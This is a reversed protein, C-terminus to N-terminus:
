VSGSKCAHIIDLVSRATLYFSPAPSYVARRVAETLTIGPAGRLVQLARAYLDYYLRRKMPRTSPSLAIGRRMQSVIILAREESIWFRSAPMRSLEESIETLDIRRVRRVYARYHRMIETNRERKFECEAGFRKMIGENLNIMAGGAEAVYIVYAADMM